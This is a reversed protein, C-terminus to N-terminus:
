NGQDEFGNGYYELLRELQKQKLMLASRGTGEKHALWHHNVCLPVRNEIRMWNRTKSKPEIEHVHNFPKRCVICKNKYIEAIKLNDEM